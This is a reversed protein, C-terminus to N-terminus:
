RIAEEVMDVWWEGGVQMVRDMQEDMWVQVRGQVDADQCAYNVAVEIPVYEIGIGPAVGLEEFEGQGDYRLGLKFEKVKKHLDYTPSTSHNLLHVARKEWDNPTVTLKGLQGRYPRKYETWTEVRRDAEYLVVGALWVALAETSAPVVVDRWDTMRKGFLRWGLAKLGQPLNALHYADKMTDTFQLPAEWLGLRHLVELDHLDNHISIGKRGWATLTEWLELMERDAAWILRGHTPRVSYQLSWPKGHSDDETDVPLWSYQEDALDEVLEDVDTIVRYDVVEGSADPPTWSGRLWKGIRTWDDLMPIMKTTNHLGMSPHYMIVIWGSWFPFLPIDGEEVKRPYGSDKDLDYDDGLVAKCATAGLLFLVEPMVRRVEGPLWHGACDTLQRDSPKNNNEGLRCKVSNTIYVEERGIGALPLYTGDLEKGTDGCFMRGRSDEERGPKEGVAMYRAPIPGSGLICRLLPDCSSCRSM